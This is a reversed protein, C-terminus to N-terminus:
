IDVIVTVDRLTKAHHADRCQQNEAVTLYFLLHDACFALCLQERLDCFKDRCLALGRRCGLRQRFGAFAVQLPQDTPDQQHVVFYKNRFFGFHLRRIEFFENAEHKPPIHGHLKASTPQIMTRTPRDDTTNSKEGEVPRRHSGIATAETACLNQNRALRRSRPGFFQWPVSQTEAFNRILAPRCRRDAFKAPM